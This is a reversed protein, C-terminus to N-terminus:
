LTKTGVSVKAKGRGVVREPWALTAEHPLRVRMLGGEESLDMDTSIDHSRIVEPGSPSAKASDIRSKM